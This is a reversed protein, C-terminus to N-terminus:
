ENTSRTIRSFLNIEKSFIFEWMFGVWSKHIYLNEYFEPAIKKLRAIKTWPISPFDHHEVHHGFNFTLYNMPGYYSYTEQKERVVYHEAIFHTAMPHISMGVFTSLLLFILCPWGLVNVLAADFLVQLVINGWEWRTLKEPSKILPRLVYTLPQIFLWLLKGMSSYFMKAESVLPIDPDKQLHGLNRHHSFHYKEFGMAVPVGLPLNIFIAFCRNAWLSKFALHHSTEHIATFISHAITAGLLYVSVFWWFASLNQAYFALFLQMTLLITVVYKTKNEYGMLRQIEPYKKLIEKRRFKHPDRNQDVIFYGDRTM